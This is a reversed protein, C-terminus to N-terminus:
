CAPGPARAVRSLVRQRLGRALQRSRLYWGARDKLYARWLRGSRFYHMEIRPTDIVASARNARGLATGASVEAHRAVERLVAANV